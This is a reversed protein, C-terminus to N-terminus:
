LYDQYTEQLEPPTSRTSRSSEMTGPTASSAPTSNGPKAGPSQSPKSNPGPTAPSSPQTPYVAEVKPGRYNMCMPCQCESQRPEPRKTRSREQGISLLVAGLIMGAPLGWSFAMLAVLYWEM